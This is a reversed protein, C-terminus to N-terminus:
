HPCCSSFEYFGNYRGSCSKATAQCRPAVYAFCGNVDCQSTEPNFYEGEPCKKLSNTLPRCWITMIYFHNICIMVTNRVEVTINAPDGFPVANELHMYHECCTCYAINSQMLGRYRNQNLENFYADLDITGNNCTPATSRVTVGDVKCYPM